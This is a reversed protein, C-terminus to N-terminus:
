LTPPWRRHQRCRPVGTREWVCHSCLHVSMGVGVPRHTASFASHWIVPRREPRPTSLRWLGPVSRASVPCQTTAIM